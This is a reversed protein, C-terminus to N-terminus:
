CCEAAPSTRRRIWASEIKIVEDLALFFHKKNRAVLVEEVVKSLTMNLKPGVIDFFGGFNLKHDLEAFLIRLIISTEINMGFLNPERNHIPSKSNFTVFCCHCDRRLNRLPSSNGTAADELTQAKVLDLLPKHDTSMINCLDLLFHTKGSGTSAATLIIPNSNKSDADGQDLQCRDNMADVMSDWCYQLQPLRHIIPLKTEQHFESTTNTWPFGLDM